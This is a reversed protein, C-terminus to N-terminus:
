ALTGSSPVAELVAVPEADALVDITRLPRRMLWLVALTSGVAAILITPRL